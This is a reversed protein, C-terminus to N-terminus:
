SMNRQLKLMHLRILLAAINKHSYNVRLLEHDLVMAM